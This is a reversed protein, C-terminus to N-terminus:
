AGGKKKVPGLKKIKNLQKSVDEMGLKKLTAAKQYGTEPDWGRLSYYEDKM